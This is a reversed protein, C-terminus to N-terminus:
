IIGNELEKMLENDRITIIIYNKNKSLIEHIEIMGCDLIFINTKGNRTQHNCMKVMKKAVIKYITNVLKDFPAKEIDIFMEKKM